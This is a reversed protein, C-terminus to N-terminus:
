LSGAVSEHCCIYKCIYFPLAVSTCSTLRGGALPPLLRRYNNQLAVRFSHSLLM